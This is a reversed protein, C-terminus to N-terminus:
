VLHLPIRRLGDGLELCLADGPDDHERAVAVVDRPADRALEAEVLVVGLEEGGVLDLVDLPEHALPGLSAREGEHAVADVVGGHQRSRVHPDGHAGHARVRGNTSASSVSVLKPTPAPKVPAARRCCATM